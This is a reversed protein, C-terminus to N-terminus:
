VIGHEAKFQAYLQRKYLEQEEMARKEWPTMGGHRARSIADAASMGAMDGAMGGGMEAILMPLGSKAGTLGRAALGGGGGLGAQLVGQTLKDQWDGETLAGGLAGFMIDPAFQMAIGERTWPGTNSAIRTGAKRLGTNVLSGGQKGLGLAFQAAKSLASLM